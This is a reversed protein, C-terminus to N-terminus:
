PFGVGSGPFDTFLELVINGSGLELNGDLRGDAALDDGPLGDLSQALVHQGLAVAAIDGALLLQQFLLLFAFLLHTLQAANGQGTLGEGSHELQVAVVISGIFAFARTGTM